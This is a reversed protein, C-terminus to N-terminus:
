LASRRFLFHEFGYFHGLITGSGQSFDAPSGQLILERTSGDEGHLTCANGSISYTGKQESESHHGPLTDVTGDQNMYMAPHPPLDSVMKLSFKGGPLFELTATTTEYGADAVFLRDQATWVSNELFNKKSCMVSCSNCFLALAAFIIVIKRM